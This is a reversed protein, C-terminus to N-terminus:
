RSEAERREDESGRKEVGEIGGGAVSQGKKTFESKM